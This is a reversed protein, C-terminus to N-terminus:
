TTQKSKYIILLSMAITEIVSFSVLCPVLWSLTANVALGIVAALFLLPVSAFLMGAGFIFQLTQANNLKAFQGPMWRRTICALGMGVAPLASVALISAAVIKENM